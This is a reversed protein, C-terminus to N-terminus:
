HLSTHTSWPATCALKTTKSCSNKPGSFEPPLNADTKTPKQTLESLHSTCDDRSEALHIMDEGSRISQLCTTQHAKYTEKRIELRWSVVYVATLRERLTLECTLPPRSHERPVAIRRIQIHMLQESTAVTKVTVTTTHPQPTTWIATSAAMKKNQIM